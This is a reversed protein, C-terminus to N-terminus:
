ATNELVVAFLADGQGEEPRTAVGGSRSFTAAWGPVSARVFAPRRELFGAVIDENEEPESSCTSYVLRGGPAVLSGAADILTSQRRAHRVVEELSSRWRIDPHRALTGLGSCPADLLVTPFRSRFPARLLDAGVCLVNPAGWRRVLTALTTLRRPSAEAAVVVAGPHVDAMLTAKGGPAACADLIPGQAAAALHAVLQSGLEQAYALGDEALDALRGETAEFAGPVPLARPRLSAAREAAGSARPNLRFVLAAPLLLARARAVATGPGLRDIWRQALWRPLSGETTMWGIADDTPDPFAPPGERALRRLVANVFSASRPARRRALDVSESVAARSPVRLRLIQSAGLRLIALARPDVRSLPRDVVSALAHDIAGRHRLTGLVLEHLFARERTDLRTAAPSALLDSLVAGGQDVQILVDLAIRRAPTPMAEASARKGPAFAPAPPSRRRM